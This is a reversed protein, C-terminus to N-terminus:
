MAATRRSARQCTASHEKVSGQRCCNPVAHGLVRSSRGQVKPTPLGNWGQAYTNPPSGNSTCTSGSSSAAMARRLLKSRSWSSSSLTTVSASCGPQQSSGAHTARAGQALALGTTGALHRQGGRHGEGAIQM